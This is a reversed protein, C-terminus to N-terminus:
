PYLVCTRPNPIHCVASVFEPDIRVAFLALQDGPGESADAEDVVVVQVLLFLEPLVAAHAQGIVVARLIQRLQLFFFFEQLFDVADGQLLAQAM